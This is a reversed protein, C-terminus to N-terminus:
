KFPFAMEVKRLLNAHHEETKHYVEDYFLEVIHFQYNDNCFYRPRRRKHNQQSM